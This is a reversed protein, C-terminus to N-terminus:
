TANQIISLVEDPLPLRPATGTSAGEGDTGYLVDEIAKLKGATLKTSDIVM